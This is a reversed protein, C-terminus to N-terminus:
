VMQLEMVYSIWGVPSYNGHNGSRAVVDPLIMVDPLIDDPIFNFNSDFEAFAVDDHSRRRIYNHLTM